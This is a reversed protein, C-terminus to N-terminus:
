LRAKLAKWDRGRQSHAPKVGMAKCWSYITKDGINHKMSAAVLGEQTATRVANVIDDDTYKRM